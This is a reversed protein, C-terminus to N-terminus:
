VPPPAVFKPSAPNCNPCLAAGTKRNISWGARRARARCTSGHEDTYQWPFERFAHGHKDPWTKSNDNGNECYLDLAYTGAIM